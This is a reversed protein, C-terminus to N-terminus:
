ESICKDYDKDTSYIIRKRNIDYEQDIICRRPNYWKTKIGALKILLHPLDDLMFPKNTSNEIEKAIEKHNNKYENTLYILFPVDFQCHYGDKGMEKFDFSRGIKDRYDYVEDGHDAFYIIIADKDKYIDIIESVVADNYRTANDYEAIVQRKDESLDARNIDKNTFYCADSPYKDKAPVHQGNLQFMILNLSDKELATRDTEFQHVLDMDYQHWKENVKDFCYYAVKPHTLFGSSENYHDKEKSPFFQNSYFVVNYGALVFLRPFLPAEYWHREEGISALSLFNKFSHTTVNYPAIVDNFVYLNKKDKLLPNTELPYGYLSSHHKNYSEGIIIVINKSLYSCGEISATEQSLLLRNTQEKIDSFQYYSKTINWLATRIIWRDAKDYFVQSYAYQPYANWSYRM